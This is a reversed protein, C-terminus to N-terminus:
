TRVGSLSSVGLRMPYVRASTNIRFWIPFASIKLSLFTTRKIIIFNTSSNVSLTKVGTQRGSMICLLNTNNNREVTLVKKRVLSPRPTNEHLDKPKVIGAPTIKRKVKLISRLSFLYHTTGVDVAIADTPEVKPTDPIECSIHAYWGSAKKVLSVEKPDGQLPRHMYIKVEGLKPVKLRDHKWATERIPNERVRITQKDTTKTKRRVVKTYKRLSWTLSRVRKKYRPFGKKAAGNECRKRFAVFAKDNRRLAHNQFDQPM